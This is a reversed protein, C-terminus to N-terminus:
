EEVIEVEVRSYAYDAVQVSHLVADEVYDFEKGEAENVVVLM